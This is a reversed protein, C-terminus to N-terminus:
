VSQDERKSLYYIDRSLRYGEKQFLALSPENLDEILCCIIRAGMAKLAGEALVIMRAGLGQRRWDPHVALRNIWGKRGEWSALVMAVMRNGDFAGIFVIHDDEMQRALEHPSDRGEPRHDLEADRFLLCIDDIDERSLRRTSYRERVM